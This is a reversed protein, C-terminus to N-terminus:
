FHRKTQAKKLSSLLKCLTEAARNLHMSNIPEKEADQSGLLALPEREISLNALLVISYHKFVYYSEFDFLYMYIDLLLM